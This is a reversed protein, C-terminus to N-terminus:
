PNVLFRVANSLSTHSASAPDRSWYQAFVEAGAVLSADSGIVIWDNFDFSYGGTCSSGSPAGGSSQSPTRLTPDAVCKTGGQFPVSTPAHSYFLLGSKQNIVNTATVLFPASSNASPTESFAITPTCGLSNLKGACYTAPASPFLRYAKVVGSDVGGADSLSGAFVFERFGDGDYDDVAGALADGLKDTSNGSISALRAGSAGSFVSVNGKNAFSGGSGFTFYDPAGVLIEGVGDGNLDDSACVAAGFHHDFGNAVGFTLTRLEYPPTQAALKAGSLVVVRGVEGGLGDPANPAGAVIDAVGDGDYDHAMALSQGLREGAVNSDYHVVQLSSSFWVNVRGADIASGNDFGPQGFALDPTGDGDLDHGGAVSAGLESGAQTTSFDWGQTATVPGSLSLSGGDIVFVYSSGALGPAGVMVDPLNNGSSVFGCAVISRGLAQNSNVGSRAGGLAHTAGDLLHILGCDSEIFGDYGPQGVVFDAVGDGTVDGVQALAYGFQDGASVPPAVSWLTQAGTGLKLYAGSICYVAGRQSNFGPAGVLVDKFGDGNQDSIASCAKGFRANATPGNVGRVLQQAGSPLALAAGVVLQVVLSQNMVAAGRGAAFGLWGIAAM